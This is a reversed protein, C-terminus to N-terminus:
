AVCEQRILEIPVGVVDAGEKDLAIIADFVDGQHNVDHAWLAVARRLFVREGTAKWTLLARNGNDIYPSM